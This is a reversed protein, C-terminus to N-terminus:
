KYEMFYETFLGQLLGFFIMILVIYSFDKLSPIRFNFKKNYSRGINYHMINEIINLVIFVIVSIIILHINKTDM